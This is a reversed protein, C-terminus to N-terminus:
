IEIKLGDFALQMNSPLKNNVEDHLGIHHSMHTFYTNRAGIEKAIEVSEELSFHSIHKEQRLADIILVKSGLLKEKEQDAIFNADSVYAFDGIRFGLIPLRYHMLRIPMVKLNKIFFEDENITHLNIKPIGPYNNSSFIYAYEKRLAEQVRTEAYVDMPKQTMFNFARVDDLGAIHDKHEHTFLIADLKNINERLMQQRFDPGSDILLNLDDYEIFVSSRLRNDKPNISKCVDCDCGIVPVGQSTGTGLVTVKV